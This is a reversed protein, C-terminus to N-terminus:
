GYIVEEYQVDVYQHWDRTGNEPAPLEKFVGTTIIRPDSKKLFLNLIYLISIPLYSYISDDKEKKRKRYSYSGFKESEFPSNAALIIERSSSVSLHEIIAASVFKIADEFGELSEDFTFTSLIGNAVGVWLSFPRSSDIDLSTIDKFESLTIYTAM